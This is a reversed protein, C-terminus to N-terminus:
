MALAAFDAALAALVALGAFWNVWTPNRTDTGVVHRDNSLALLIILIGPLLVGDLVQSYYLAQAPEFDPLLSILAGGGLAAALVIHFGRATGDRLGLGQRWGFVDAVAYATSAALVPLALLGAAVIGIVFAAQGIHHLPALAHAADAVTSIAGGGAHITVAAAVIIFFAVFNSYIMGIWVGGDFEAPYITAGHELEEVEETAQWFLMYPSITTGLLGLAAILWTKDLTFKPVVTAVAIATWDPRAVLAAAVYSLLVLTLVTLVRKITEYGRRFLLGLIALIVPVFVEWPLGTVIGLVSAVGSADAAITAVNPVALLLMVLISVPRGYRRTIVAALGARQAIAVRGAMITAAALMPTSLLLLWLQSFGTTAGVITYTVVGAPDDGAGGTILAPVAGRASMAALHETHRLRERASPRKAPEHDTV